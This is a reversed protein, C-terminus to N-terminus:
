FIQFNVEVNVEVKVPKGNEMAPKFKYQRVAELAKEDLGMGLGQLVHARTVNGKEDVILDVMVIGSMKAKRAEESFEAEPEFIPIPASVGGGVQRVGGGTNGGSGPGLGNGNGPGIGGGSGNGMSLTVNPANNMGMQPLNMQMKLKPDVDITPEVALKPQIVPAKPPTIQVPSFKPPSGKSVPAPGVQGGGGGAVKLERPALPPPANLVEVVEQKPAAFKIGTKAVLFVLLGIVVVHLVFAIATSTPDRKVAMRDVVAVPQSELVLPPLKKPFFVDEISSFLSAFVGQEADALDEGGLHLDKELHPLKVEHGPDVEPPTVLLNAM